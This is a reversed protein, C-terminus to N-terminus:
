NCISHSLLGVSASHSAPLRSEPQPWQSSEAATLHCLCHASACCPKLHACLCVHFSSSLHFHFCCTLTWARSPLSFFQSFDCLEIVMCRYHLWGFLILSQKMYGAKWHSHAVFALISSERNYFGLKTSVEVVSQITYGTLKFCRIGRSM